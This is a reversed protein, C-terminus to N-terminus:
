PKPIAKQWFNIRRPELTSQVRSRQETRALEKVWDQANQARKATGARHVIRDEFQEKMM